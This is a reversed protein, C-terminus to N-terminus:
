RFIRKFFNLINQFFTKEEEQCNFIIEEGWNHEGIIMSVEGCSSSWVIEKGKDSTINYEPFDAGWYIIKADCNNIGACGIGHSSPSCEQETDSNLFVCKIPDEVPDVTVESKKGSEVMWPMVEGFTVMSECQSKFSPWVAEDILDCVSKNNTTVAIYAYCTPVWGVVGRDSLKECFSYYNINIAINAYCRSTEDHYTLPCGLVCDGEDDCIMDEPCDYDSDCKEVPSTGSVFVALSLLTLIAIPMIIKKNM